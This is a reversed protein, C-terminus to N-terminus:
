RGPVLQKLAEDNDAAKEAKELGFIRRYAESTRLLQEHTGSAAVKGMRLVVIQDAWRIQSLRHTILFTTRGETARYIARQIQDETASDIASTSDDLILIRPNTLFARALAIRQRQGGSLTVGRMGIVTQYGDKFGMIFEHAQADRAAQEIQEQTANPSGFAINEAITRSFLFIDQEIISIQSRLSELNWDRVDIGDLLVRGSTADYARNILKVLTSKGAGTQGVLAVIQGPKTEFSVDQVSPAADPYAFSVGDFKVGGQIAGVHGAKNQDLETQTQLLELIRRAAAIGLSFESYGYLSTMVPFGYLSIYGMYTVVNGITIQGARLLILAHLFATGIAISMVLLPVFRAELRGQRVYADRFASANDAFQAVERNEQSAGKVIEIGDIAEALRANMKGFTGRVSETIPKLLALHQRVTLVYGITFLVPTLILQPSIAPSLVLPFIMFMASGVIMNLGQPWMLYLEHVDNTARAMIDGVSQISHFAMSKGLLNAYLEKRADREVRQGIIEASANRMYQLVARVSQSTIAAVACWAVVTLNPTPTLIANFAIGLLVPIFAAGLGNCFAGIVFTVLYKAYRFAHAAIWRYPSSRNYSYDDAVVFESALGPSSM